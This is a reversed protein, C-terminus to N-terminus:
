RVLKGSSFTESYEVANAKDFRVWAGHKQNDKFNGIQCLQGNERYFRWEGQMMGGVSQGQAKIKGSKYYYTLVDGQQM